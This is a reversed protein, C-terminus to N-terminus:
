QETKKKQKAKTKFEEKVEEKKALYLKFQEETFLKKLEDDKEANYGKLKKFKEKRPEDSNRLDETKNAYKLNIEQAPNEQDATLQLNSKMWATLKAAREDPPVPEADQQQAVCCASCLVMLFLLAPTLIFIPKMHM